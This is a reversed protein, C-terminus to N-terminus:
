RGRTPPVAGTRGAEWDSRLLEYEVDGQEDGEIADPWPQWFTRVLTLGTKEMVRRSAVHVTM